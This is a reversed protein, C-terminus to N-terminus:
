STMTSSSWAKRPFPLWPTFFSSALEWESCTASLKRLHRNHQKQEAKPDTAETSYFRHVGIRAVEEASRAKGGALVLVCASLCSGKVRVTKGGERLWSGASMAMEILGGMSDIQLKDFRHRRLIDLFDLGIDGAYVLTSGNLSVEPPKQSWPNSSGGPPQFDRVAYKKADAWPCETALVLAAADTLGASKLTEEVQLQVPRYLPQRTKASRSRRTVINWECREAHLVLGM